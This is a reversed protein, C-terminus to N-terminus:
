PQQQILHVPATTAIMASVQPQLFFLAFTPLGGGSLGTTVAGATSSEIRYPLSFFVQSSSCIVAKLAAFRLATDAELPVTGGSWPM